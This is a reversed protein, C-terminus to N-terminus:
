EQIPASDRNCSIVESRGTKPLSTYINSEGFSCILLLRMISTLSNPLDPDEEEDDDLLLALSNLTASGTNQLLSKM